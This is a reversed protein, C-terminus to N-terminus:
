AVTIYIYKKKHFPFYFQLKEWTVLIFKYCYAEECKKQSVQECKWREMVENGERERERERAGTRNISSESPCLLLLFITLRESDM